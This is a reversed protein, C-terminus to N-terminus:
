NNPHQIYQNRKRYKHCWNWIKNYRWSRKYNRFSNLNYKYKISWFFLFTDNKAIGTILLPNAKRLGM